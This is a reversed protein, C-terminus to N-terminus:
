NNQLTQKVQEKTHIDTDSNGKIKVKFKRQKYKAYKDKAMYVFKDEDLSYKVSINVEQIKYSKITM